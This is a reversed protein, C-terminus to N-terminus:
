NRDHVVQWFGLFEGLGIHRPCVHVMVMIDQSIILSYDKKKKTKELYDDHRDHMELDMQYKTVDKQNRRDRKKNGM